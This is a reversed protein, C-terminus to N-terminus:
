VPLLRAGPFSVLDLAVRPAIVRSSSAQYMFLYKIESTRVRPAMTM